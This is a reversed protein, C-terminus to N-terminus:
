FKTNTERKPQSKLHQNPPKSSVNPIQKTPTIITSMFKYQKNLRISNEFIIFAPTSNNNKKKYLLQHNFWGVIIINILSKKM